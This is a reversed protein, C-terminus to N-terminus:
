VIIHWYLSSLDFYDYLLRFFFGWVFGLCFCCFWFLFTCSCKLVHISVKLRLVSLLGGLPAPAMGVEHVGAWVCENVAKVEESHAAPCPAEPEPDSHGKLETTPLLDSSRLGEGRGRGMLRRLCLICDSKGGPDALM